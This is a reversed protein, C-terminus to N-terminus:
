IDDFNKILIYLPINGNKFIKHHFDQNNGDYKKKLDLFVKEGMKYALAQGPISMYRHIENKISDDSYFSFKKFFKFCKKYDWGYYHIGTDLVLRISRLMEMNLKGYYSLEDKYEGLTESYLGWGEAFATSEFINLFFPIKKNEIMHQIQFHHGPYAEHLTLSESELKNQSRLNGLNIYFTGKRTNQVDSRIYYAGSAFEQNYEPVSKLDMDYKITDKFETKMVTDKIEKIMTRFSKMIEDKSQYQFTKNSSLYKNFDRINGDYNQNNKIIIMSKLIRNCESMGYKFIEPISIKKLTLNDESIEKYLNKGNPLQCLGDKEKCHKLYVKQLYQIFENAKPELLQQIVKNFNLDKYSDAKKNYYIKKQLSVKLQKILLKCLLKSLVIGRKIGQNLLDICSTIIEPYVITKNIINIYETRNRMKFYSNGSILEMYNVLFNEHHNIPLYKLNSKLSILEQKLYYILCKDNINKVKKNEIIKIYKRFLKESKSNYEPSFYNEQLGDLYEYKKIRFFENISPSLEFYEDVFKNYITM